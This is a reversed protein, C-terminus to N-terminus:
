GNLVGKEIFFKHIKNFEEQDSIYELDEVCLFKNKNLKNSKEIWVKNMEANCFCIYIDFGSEAMGLMFYGSGSLDQLPLEELQRDKEIKKPYKLRM